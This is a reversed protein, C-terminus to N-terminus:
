ITISHIVMGSDGYNFRVSVCQGEALPKDESMETYSFHEVFNHDKNEVKVKGYGTLDNWEVISGICSHESTLFYLESEGEMAYSLMYILELDQGTQFKNCYNPSPPRKLAKDRFGCYAAYEYVDEAQFM